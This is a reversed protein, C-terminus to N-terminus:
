FVKPAVGLLNLNGSGAIAFLYSGPAIRFIAASRASPTSMFSM